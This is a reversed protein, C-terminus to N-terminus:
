QQAELKYMVEGILVGALNEVSDYSNIIKGDLIEMTRLVWLGGSGKKRMIAYATYNRPTLEIEPRQEAAKAPAPTPFPGPKVVQNAGPAPNTTGATTEM